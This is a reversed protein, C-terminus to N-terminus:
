TTSTAGVPSAAHRAVIRIRGVAPGDGAGWIAGGTAGSQPEVEFTSQVTGGSEPVAVLWGHYSGCDGWNGGFGVIVRGGTMQDLTACANAYWAPNRFAECAVLLGGRVRETGMLAGTLTTWGEYAPSGPAVAVVNLHDPIFITEYGLREAARAHELVATFPVGEQPIQVGFKM